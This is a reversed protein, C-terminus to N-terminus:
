LVTQDEEVDELAAVNKATSQSLCASERVASTSATSCCCQDRGHLADALSYHAGSARRVLASTSRAMKQLFGTTPPTFLASVGEM